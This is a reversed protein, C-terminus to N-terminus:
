GAGTSVLYSVEIIVGAPPAEDFVLSPMDDVSWGDSMEIADIRVEVTGPDPAERLAFRAQYSLSAQGLDALLPAFDAECISVQTGGSAEAVEAYRQGAQAVGTASTALGLAATRDGRQRPGTARDRRGRRGPGRPLRRGSEDGLWAESQDDADSVFVVHLLADPRRFGANPDGPGSLALAEVAAALGAEASVSDTGVQVMDAFAVEVSPCHRPDPDM